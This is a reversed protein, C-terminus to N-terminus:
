DGVLFFIMLAMIALITLIEVFEKATLTKKRGQKLKPIKLYNAKKQKINITQKCVPCISSKSRM